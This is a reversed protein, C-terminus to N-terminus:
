ARKWWGCPSHSIPDWDEVRVDRVWRPDLELDALQIAKLPGGQEPIHKGGRRSDEGTWMDFCADEVVLHCGPTVLQGLSMIEEWVHHAHHDSDLSVMVRRGEVLSRVQLLVAPDTSSGRIFTTGAPHGEIQAQSMVPGIDISVVDLGLKTAFWLASGGYRTGTEIVVDPKTDEVIYRYRELDPECKQMERGLHRVSYTGFYFTRLTDGSSWTDLPAIM